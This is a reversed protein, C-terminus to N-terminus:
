AWASRPGACPSFRRGGLAARTKGAEIRAGLCEFLALAERLHVEAGEPVHRGAESRALCGLAYRAAAQDYRAGMREACRLSRRLSATARAHRGQHLEWRGRLLAACPKASPFQSALRDLMALGSRVPQAHPGPDPLSLYVDLICYLPLGLEMMASRLRQVLSMAAAALAVAREREGQVLASLASLSHLVAEPAPGLEKSLLARTRHLAGEAEVIAGLRLRATAGALLALALYRSNGTRVALREIEGAIEAARVFDDLGMAAVQLQFLCHMVDLEDKRARACAIAREASEAAERWRGENLRVLSTGRLGDIEARTGPRSPWAARDLYRQCLGRLRTHSLLFALSARCNTREWSGLAEELNLGLLTCLLLMDPRDLWVYIEQVTLALLQEERLAREAAGRPELPLRRALGLRRTVQEAIQLGLAGALGAASTPMPSRVLTFVRRLAEDTTELRGLGFRAEALGRWVRVETLLPPAVRHHAAIAREFAAEAESLAGRALAAFGALADHHAAEGPRDAERFHHAIEAAHEASEPYTEVLAGAMSAHLARREVTGTDCLVRERLKDHSYRYGQEHVELVGVEACAQVLADLRPALRSLVDLDLRRGGVAAVRLLARAEAPV